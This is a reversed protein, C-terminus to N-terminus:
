AAADARLRSFLKRAGGKDIAARAERSLGEFADLKATFSAGALHPRM